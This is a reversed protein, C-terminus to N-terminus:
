GRTCRCRSRASPSRTRPRCTAPGRAAPASSARSPTCRTRASRRSSAASACRSSRARRPRAGRRVHRRVGPLPPRLRRAGGAATVGDIESSASPCRPRSSAGARSSTRSAPCRSWGSRRTSTALPPLQLGARRVDRALGARETGHNRLRRLRAALAPDDTLVMGGEGTTLSKRPHFCFCSVVGFAGTRREGIAGGLSCAADCILPIGRDALLPEIATYNPPCGSSTSPSAGGAHAATLAAELAGPDVCYTAPDVDVLRLSAGRQLVANGTAPYTFDAAVVEDGPGVDLAALALELATTASTTAVGDGAGCFGAIASEFEAVVPGQTLNGSALM